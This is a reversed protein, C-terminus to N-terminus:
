RAKSLWAVSVCWARWFWLCLQWWLEWRLRQQSVLDGQWFPLVFCLGVGSMKVKAKTKTKTKMEEREKMMRAGVARADVIREGELRDWGWEWERQWARWGRGLARWGQLTRGITRRFAAASVYSAGLAAAKLGAQRDAQEVVWRGVKGAWGAM